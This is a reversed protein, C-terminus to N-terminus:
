LKSRTESLKSFSVIATGSSSNECALGIITHSFSLFQHWVGFIICVEMDVVVVAAAMAEVEMDEEAAAEAMDEVAVDVVVEMVAPVLRIMFVMYIHLLFREIHNSVENVKIQQGNITAGDM